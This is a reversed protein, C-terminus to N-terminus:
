CVNRMVEIRLYEMYKQLWAVARKLSYLSFCYRILRNVLPLGTTKECSFLVTVLEVKKRIFSLRRAAIAIELCNLCSKLRGTFFNQM